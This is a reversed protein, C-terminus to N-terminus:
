FKRGGINSFINRARHFPQRLTELEQNLMKPGCCECDSSSSDSEVREIAIKYRQITERCNTHFDEYCEVLDNFHFRAKPSDIIFDTDSDASRPEIFLPEVFVNPFTAPLSANQNNQTTAASSLQSVITTNEQTSPPRTFTILGDDNEGCINLFSTGDNPHREVDEALAEFLPSVEVTIQPLKPRTSNQPEIAQALKKKVKRRYRYLKDQTTRTELNPFSTKGEVKNADMRLFSTQPPPLPKTTKKRNQEVLHNANEREFENRNERLTTRKPTEDALFRKQASFFEPVPLHAPPINKAKKLSQETDKRFNKPTSSPIDFFDVKQRTDFQHRAFKELKCQKTKVVQENFDNTQLWKTCKEFTTHRDEGQQSVRYLIDDDDRQDNAIEVSKMRHSQHSHASTPRHDRTVTTILNQKVRKSSDKYQNLCRELCKRVIPESLQTLIDNEPFTIVILFDIEFKQQTLIDNTTPLFDNSPKGNIFTLQIPALNSRVERQSFFCEVSINDKSCAVTCIDTETIEYLECYKPLLANLKKSEFVVESTTLDILSFTRDYHALALTRLDVLLKRYNEKLTQNRKWAPEDCFVNKLTVTTGKSRRGHYYQSVSEFNLQSSESTVSAQKFLKSHFEGDHISEILVEECKGIIDSLSSSTLRAFTKTQRNQEFDINLLCCNGISQLDAKSIGNGNDLVQVWLLELCIRIAITSSHADLCNKLLALIIEALTEM